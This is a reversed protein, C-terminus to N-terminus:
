LNKPAVIPSLKPSFYHSFIKGANIALTALSAAFLICGFRVTMENSLMIGIVTVMLALLFIWYGTMQLRASYMEALAPVKARGIHQSYTGFWILFPIIKYLMGIVALSIFGIFSAFGYANELQGTFDNSPLQPWSLVLALVSLPALTAIATLFYKMGWDLVPRKRVRLIAMTEIGYLALGAIIILAFVPKLSLQMLVSIFSGALGVNLLIISGAARRPNQVESLTFMPILKYSVGVILMTFFGLVGLHAHAHMAGIPNSSFIQSGHGTKGATIFLGATIGFLIWGISSAISAAVTNWKPIRLLTRVINYIFLCIGTAFLSGFWGVWKMNWVHFALVMGVFGAVHFAFQVKALRESFLKAELAVPVLQYMSGMVITCLWGLVFLHTIAIANTNYHYTALIQPQAILWGAATFLALLGTIMFALPLATSSATVSTLGGAARSSAPTARGAPKVAGSIPLSVEM